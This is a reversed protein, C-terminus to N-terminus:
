IVDLDAFYRSIRYINESGDTPGTFCARNQSQLKDNMVYVIMTQSPSGSWTYKEGPKILEASAQFEKVDNQLKEAEERSIRLLESLAAVSLSTIKRARTWQTATLGAFTTETEGKIEGEEAMISARGGALAGEEGASAAIAAVHMGTTLLASVVEVSAILVKWNIGHTIWVDHGTDNLISCSAISGMNLTSTQPSRSCNTPSYIM